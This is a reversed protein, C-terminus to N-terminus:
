TEVRLRLASREGGPSMWDLSILYAPPRDGVVEVRGSAGLPLQRAVEDLWSVLAAAAALEAPCETPSGACSLGADGGAVSELPRGDPRPLARLQESLSTALRLATARNAADRENRIAQVLLAAIGALAVAAVLLAALAEVLTFGGHRLM